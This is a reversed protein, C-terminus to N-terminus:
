KLKKWLPADNCGDQYVEGNEIKYRCSTEGIICDYFKTSLESTASDYVCEGDVAIGLLKETSIPMAGKGLIYGISFPIIVILAIGLWGILEDM